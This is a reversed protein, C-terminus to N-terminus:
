PLFALFGWRSQWFYLGLSYRYCHASLSFASPLFFQSYFFLSSLFPIFLHCSYFPTCLVWLTPFIIPFIFTKLLASLSPLVPSILPSSPVMLGFSINSIIYIYFYILLFLLVPSFILFPFYSSILLSFIPFFLLSYSFCCFPSKQSSISPYPCHALASLTVKQMNASPQQDRGRGGSLRQCWHFTAERDRIVVHSSTTIHTRPPLRPDTSALSSLDSLPLPHSPTVENYM